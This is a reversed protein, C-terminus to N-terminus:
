STEEKRSLIDQQTGEILEKLNETRAESYEQRALRIIIIAGLAAM